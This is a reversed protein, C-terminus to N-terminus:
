SFSGFASSAYHLRKKENEGAEATRESPTRGVTQEKEREDSIGLQTLSISVVTGGKKKECNLDQIRKECLLKNLSSLDRRERIKRGRLKCRQEKL